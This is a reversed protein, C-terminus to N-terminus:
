IKSDLGWNNWPKKAKWHIYFDYRSYQYRASIINGIFFSIRLLVMIYSIMIVDSSSIGLFDFNQILFGPLFWMFLNITFLSPIIGILLIILGELPRNLYFHALGYLGLIGGFIAWFTTASSSKKLRDVKRDFERQKEINTVTILFKEFEDNRNNESM